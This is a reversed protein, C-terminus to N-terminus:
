IDMENPAPLRSCKPNKTYIAEDLTDIINDGIWHWNLNHISKNSTITQYINKFSLKIKCLQV